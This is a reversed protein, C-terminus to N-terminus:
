GLGAQIASLHQRASDANADELAGQNKSAVGLTNAVANLKTRHERSKTEWANQAAVFTTAAVGKWADPLAALQGILSRMTADIEEAQAEMTRATEAVQEPDVEISM